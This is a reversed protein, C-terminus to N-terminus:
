LIIDQKFQFVNAIQTSQQIYLGVEDKHVSDNLNNAAIYM